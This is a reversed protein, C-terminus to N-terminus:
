IGSANRAKKDLIAVLLGIFAIASLIPIPSMYRSYPVIAMAAIIFASAFSSLACSFAFVFLMKDSKLKVIFYSSIVLALFGLSVWFAHNIVPLYRWLFTYIDEQLPTLTISRENQPYKELLGSRYTDPAKEQLLKPSKITSRAFGNIDDDRPNQYWMAKFFRMEHALFNKPHKIIAKIWANTLGYHTGCEFIVDNCGYFDGNLPNSNYAQKVRQFDTGISQAKGDFYYWEDKFCSDDDSPVCAGAIQLLLLHNAPYQMYDNYRKQIAKPIGLVIALCLVASLSLFGIYRKIFVKCDLKYSKLFMYIIIFFAPYATFIANHRWLLGLFLLVCVFIWLAIKLNKSIRENALIIFFIVCYACFIFNAMLIYNMSIFNSLYINGIFAIFLPTIAFVSRFRVYLGLVLFFIGLYLTITNLLFLYYTHKGFLLTILGIFLSNMIPGFNSLEFKFVRFTDHDLIYGPFGLWFSFAGVGFILLFAFSLFTFDKRSIYQFINYKNM